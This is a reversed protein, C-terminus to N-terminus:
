LKVFYDIVYWCAAAEVAFSLLSGVFWGFKNKSASYFPEKKNHQYYATKYLHANMCHSVMVIIAVILLVIKM